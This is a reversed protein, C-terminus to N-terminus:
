VDDPMMVAALSPDKSPSYMSVDSESDSDEDSSIPTSARFGHLLTGRSPGIKKDDTEPM